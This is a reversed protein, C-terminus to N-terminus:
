AEHSRLRWLQFVFLTTCAGFFVASYWLEAAGMAVVFIGAATMLGSLVTLGWLTGRGMARGTADLRQMRSVPELTLATGDMRELRRVLRKMLWFHAAVFLPGVLFANWRWGLVTGATIIAALMAAYYIKVARRIREESEAPVLYATRGVIVIRRGGRDTAFLNATFGDFYGM